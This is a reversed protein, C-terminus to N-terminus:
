MWEFLLVDGKVFKHKSTKKVHKITKSGVKKLERLTPDAHIKLTDTFETENNFIWCNGSQSHTIKFKKQQPHKYEKGYIELSTKGKRPDVYDEGVRDVMCIGKQRISTEVGCRKRISKGKETLNFLKLSKSVKESRRKRDESDVWTDGGDGEEPKLNLFETNNGVNWIKNYINAIKIFEDKTNAVGLICTSINCGYKLIHNTWRKGSGRYTFLSKIDTTTRKCLYYKKTKNHQKLLLYIAM